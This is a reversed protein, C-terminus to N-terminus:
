PKRGGEYVSDGVFRVGDTLRDLAEAILVLGEKIHSAIIWAAREEPTLNRPDPYGNSEVM